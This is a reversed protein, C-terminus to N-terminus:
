EDKPTNGEPDTCNRRKLGTAAGLWMLGFLALIVLIVFTTM